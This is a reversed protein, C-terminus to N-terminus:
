VLQFGVRKNVQSLLEYPITGILEALQAAKVNKGWMEVKTGAPFFHPLFISCMDMSINGVVPAFQGELYVQAKNSLARMYGDAYGCTLIALWGDQPAQWTHSYGVSEGQSIKYCSLIQSELTMVEQLELNSSKIPNCGYLGIGLRHLQHNKTFLKHIAAATNNLSFPIDLGQPLLNVQAFCSDPKTSDASHFHTMIRSINLKYLSCELLVQRIDEAAIGLRNMGTNVKLWIEQKRVQDLIKPNQLANLQDATAIVLIWNNEIIKELDDLDFFGEICLIKSEQKKLIAQVEQAEEISCVGFYRVGEQELIPVINEVGHGYADAKVMAVIAQPKCEASATLSKLNAILASSDIYRCIPRM